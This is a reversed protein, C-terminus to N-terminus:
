ALILCIINLSAMSMSVKLVSQLFFNRLDEVVSGHLVIYTIHNQLHIHIQTETMRIIVVGFCARGLTKLIDASM